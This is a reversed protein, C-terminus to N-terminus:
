NQSITRNSTSYFSYLILSYLSFSLFKTATGSLLLFFIFFLLFFSFDFLAHLSLLGIMVYFYKIFFVPDFSFYLSTANSFLRLITFYTLLSQLLSQSLKSYEIDFPISFSKIVRGPIHQSLKLQDFSQSFQILSDIQDQSAKSSFSRL